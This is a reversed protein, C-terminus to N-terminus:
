KVETSHDYILKAWKCIAYAIPIAALMELM